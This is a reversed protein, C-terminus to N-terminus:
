RVKVELKKTYEDFDSVRVTLGITWTGPVGLTLAPVIYHGPGAKSAQVDSAGIGKAPLAASVTVEKANDLQAGSKPDTLYLHMENVGVRAPDITAQLEQPGIRTITNFPGSTVTTAPAYGALAGTTALAAAILLAEARLTRRLMIGDAGPTRGGDAAARLRPITKQRNVAGLVILVTLLVLKIFVARGFATTFVLDFHRIEEIAQLLGTLLLAVVGALAITSFREVTAALLPARDGADLRRTAAPLAVLLVAIGGVWATMAAVHLVNAPFLIAVPHQTSGHGSLAPVLILFALPLAPAWTALTRRGAPLALGTAGVSARRLVPTAQRAPAWLLGVIAGILLWCLGAVLWVTGFRTGIVDGILRPHLASWFTVGAGEAAELVLAAAASLVGVAAAAGLLLRTRAAFAESARRWSEDGGATAALAGTWVVLLFLLTGGGVAIAGYQLARATSFAVSTVAGTKSSSLLSEVSEGGGASAHGVSFVVGSSVIHSDASVVRYTATYTGAPLDPKLHVGLQKGVNNPHFADGQDVRNGKADFVRVAGFNGEVAEDFTFVVQSPAKALTVGRAPSSSELTAHASASAALILLAVLAAGALGAARRM